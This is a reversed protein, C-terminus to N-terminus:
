PPWHRWVAERPDVDLGTGKDRERTVGIDRLVWDSLDTPAERRWRRRRRAIWRRVRLRARAFATQPAASTIEIPTVIQDGM